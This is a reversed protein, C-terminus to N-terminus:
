EFVRRLESVRSFVENFTSVDKKDQQDQRIVNFTSVCKIFVAFVRRLESVRSFVENFTSVDKKDQQDQQIVNFTSVRKIFVANSIM